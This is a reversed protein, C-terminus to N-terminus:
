YSLVRKVANQIRTANPLYYGELNHLPFPVDFGTVREVPAELSTLAKDNLRAIIESSTGFSRSAEQVVLCRGTKEVSSVITDHDLPSITQLDILEISAHDKMAGVVELSQKMMSGWSVLTLEEGEKVVNAKGLPITYEEEQVEQKIARYTKKPELFLVPDPDRIASVMLGKANHPTSPIVVKLGQIHGYIAEMSESHHEPAHIGGGYPARIVMQAHYKGRTRNRIRSAHSVIQEFAPYIFGSFQIEAVPKFGNIALGISTGVIGSEALPTDIVRDEGYKEILGDTARFVGGDIGVDEGLVIVSKDKAMEQNLALNIAKVINMVPM